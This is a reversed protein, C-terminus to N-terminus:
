RAGGGVGCADGPDPQNAAVPGGDSVDEREQVTPSPGASSSDGSM